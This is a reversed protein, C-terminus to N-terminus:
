GVWGWGRRSITISVATCLGSLCQGQGTWGSTRESQEGHWEVSDSFLGSPRVSALVSVMVGSFYAATMGYLILFLSADSRRTFCSILGAPVFLVLIHLDM